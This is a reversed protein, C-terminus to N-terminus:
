LVTRQAIRTAQSTAKAPKPDQSAMLRILGAERTRGALKCRWKDVFHVPKSVSLCSWM